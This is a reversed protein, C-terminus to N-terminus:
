LDLVHLEKGEVSIISSIPDLTIKLTETDPPQKANCKHSAYIILTNEQNTNYKCFTPPSLMDPNREGHIYLTLPEEHLDGLSIFMVGFILKEDDYDMEEFATTHIYVYYQGGSFNSKAGYAYM